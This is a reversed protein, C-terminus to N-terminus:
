HSMGMFLKPMKTHSAGMNVVLAINTALIIKCDHLVYDCIANVVVGNKAVLPLVMPGYPSAIMYDHGIM